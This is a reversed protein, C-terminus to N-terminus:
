KVTEQLETGADLQNLPHYIHINTKTLSTIKYLSGLIKTTINAAVQGGASPILPNFMNLADILMVIIRNSEGKKLYYKCLESCYKKFNTLLEQRNRHTPSGRWCQLSHLYDEGYDKRLYIFDVPKEKIRKLLLEWKPFLVEERLPEAGDISAATTRSFFEAAIFDETFNYNILHPVAGFFNATNLQHCHNIWRLFAQATYYRPHTEKLENIDNVCLDAALLRFIEARQLGSQGKGLTASAAEDLLRTRWDDTNEWLIELTSQNTFQIANTISNEKRLKDFLLNQYSEGMSLKEHPWYFLQRGADICECLRDNMLQDESLMHLSVKEGYVDKMLKLADRFSTIGTQRYAPVILGNEAAIEFLSHRRPNDKIHEALFPSNALYGEHMILKEEFLLNTLLHHEFAEKTPVFAYIADAATFLVHNPSPTM